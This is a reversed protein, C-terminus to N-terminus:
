SVHFFFFFFHSTSVLVIKPTANKKNPSYVIVSIQGWFMHSWISWVLSLLCLHNMTCVICRIPGVSPLVTAVFWISQNIRIIWNGSRNESSISGRLMNKATRKHVVPEFNLPSSNANAYNIWLPIIFSIVILWWAMHLNTPFYSTKSLNSKRRLKLPLWILSLLFHITSIGSSCIQMEVKELLPSLLILPNLIKLSLSAPLCGM